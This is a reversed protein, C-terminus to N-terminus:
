SDVFAPHIVILGSQNLHAHLLKRFRVDAQLKVMSSVLAVKDIGLSAVPEVFEGKGNVQAFPLIVVRLPESPDFNLSNQYKTTCASLALLGAILLCCPLLNSLFRM